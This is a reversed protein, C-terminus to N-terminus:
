VAWEQINQCLGPGDSTSAYLNQKWECEPTQQTGFDQSNVYVNVCYLGVSAVFTVTIVM